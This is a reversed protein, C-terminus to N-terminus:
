SSIYNYKKYDDFVFLLIHDPSLIEVMKYYITLSRKEYGFACIFIDRKNVLKLDFERNIFKIM